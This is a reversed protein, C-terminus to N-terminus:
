MFPFWHKVEVDATSTSLRNYVCVRNYIECEAPTLDLVAEAKVYVDHVVLFLVVVSFFPYAPSHLVLHCREVALSHAYWYNRCNCIQCMVVNPFATLFCIRLRSVQSASSLEGHEDVM